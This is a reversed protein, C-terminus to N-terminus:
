EDGESFDDLVVRIHEEKIVRFRAKFEDETDPVPLAEGGYRGWVVHLGLLKERDDDKIGAADMLLDGAEPGLCLVWGSGGTQKEIVEEPKLIGGQTMKEPVEVVVIVGDGTPTARRVVRPITLGAMAELETWTKL